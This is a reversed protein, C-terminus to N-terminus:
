PTTTEIAQGRALSVVAGLIIRASLVLSGTSAVGPASLPLKPGIDTESPELAPAM